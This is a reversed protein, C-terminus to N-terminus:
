KLHVHKVVQISVKSLFAQLYWIPLECFSLCFLSWCFSFLVIYLPWCLVIYVVLSQAVRVGRSFVLLLEWEVSFFQFCNRQVVPIRRIVVLLGSCWVIHFYHQIGIYMYQIFEFSIFLFNRVCSITTSVSMVVRFGHLQVVHVVRTGALVFRPLGM